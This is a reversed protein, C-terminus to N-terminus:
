QKSFSLQENETQEPNVLTIKTSSASSVNWTKNLRNLPDSNGLNFTYTADTATGGYYGGGSTAATYSWTGTSVAGNQTATFVGGSGFSFVYGSFVSTKDEARQSYSSVTWTGASVNVPNNNNSGSSSTDSKSCGALSLAFCLLLLCNQPKLLNYM